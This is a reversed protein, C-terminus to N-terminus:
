EPRFLKKSWERIRIGLAAEPLGEVVGTKRRRKRVITKPQVFVFSGEGSWERDFAVPPVIRAEQMKAERQLRALEATLKQHEIQLKDNEIDIERRERGQRWTSLLILLTNIVGLAVAAAIGFDQTTM